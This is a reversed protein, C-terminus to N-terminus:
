RGRPRASRAPPPTRRSRAARACPRGASSPRPRSPPSRARERRVDVDRHEAVAVDPLRGVRQQHHLLGSAGADDDSAPAEAPRPQEAVQGGGEGAPRRRRQRGQALHGRHHPAVGLQQDCYMPSCRPQLSNRLCMAHYRLPKARRRRAGGTARGPRCAPWGRRVARGARGSRATGPRSLEAGRAAALAARAADDSGSPQSSSRSPRVTSAAASDADGAASRSDGAATSYPRPRPCRVPPTRGPRRRAHGRRLRAVRSTRRELAVPGPM